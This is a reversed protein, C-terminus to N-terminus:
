AVWVIWRKRLAFLLAGGTVIKTILETQLWAHNDLFLASFIEPMFWLLASTVLLVVSAPKSWRHVFWSLWVFVFSVPLWYLEVEYWEPQPANKSLLVAYVLIM